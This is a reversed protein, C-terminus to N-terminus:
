HSAPKVPVILHFVWIKAIMWYVFLLYINSPIRLDENSDKMKSDGHFSGATLCRHWNEWLFVRFPDASINIQTDWILLIGLGLDFIRKPPDLTWNGACTWNGMTWNKKHKSIYPFHYSSPQWHHSPEEKFVHSQIHELNHSLYHTNTTAMINEFTNTDHTRTGSHQNM